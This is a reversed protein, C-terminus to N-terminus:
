PLTNFQQTMLQQRPYLFSGVPCHMAVNSKRRPYGVDAHFTRTAAENLKTVKIASCFQVGSEKSLVTLIDQRM